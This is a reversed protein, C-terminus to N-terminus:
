QQGMDKGQNQYNHNYNNNGQASYRQQGQTSEPCMRSPHGEKNCNWCVLRRESFHPRNYPQRNNTGNSNNGYSGQQMQQIQQQQQVLNINLQNMGKVIEALSDLTSTVSVKDDTAGIFNNGTIAPASDSDVLNFSVKKDTNFTVNKTSYKLLINELDVAEETVEGYTKLEKRKKELDIAITEKISSIFFSIKMKDDTVGANTFLKDMERIFHDMDVNEGQKISRLKNWADDENAKIFKDTFEEEFVMVLASTITFNHGYSAFKNVM